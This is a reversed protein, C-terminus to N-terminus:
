VGDLLILHIGFKDFKEHRASGYPRDRDTRAPEAVQVALRLVAEREAQPFNWGVAPSV